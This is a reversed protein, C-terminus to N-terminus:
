RPVILHRGVSPYRERVAAAVRGNYDSFPSHTELQGWRGWQPVIGEERQRPTETHSCAWFAVVDYEPAGASGGPCPGRYVPILDERPVRVGTEEWLERQAADIFDEGPDLKGGPLGVGAGDARTVVLVNHNLDCLVVCAGKPLNNTTNNM